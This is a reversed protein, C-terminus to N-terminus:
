EAIKRQDAVRVRIAPDLKQVGMAVVTEGPAVGHLLVQDRLLTQVQVPRATIAGQGIGGQGNGGQREDVIWVMPGQGRDGLASAPLLVLKDDYGPAALTVTATMGIALWDPPDALTFRATYTRLKADATPSLERLRAPLGQGPRAWLTVRATQSGADAVATEPLAVEAELAGSEALRLVPQGETVVTGPDALSATVVGAMPAKLMAYDLRNRALQLNARASAVREQGTRAAAQKADDSQASVWGSALLTRSRQADAQAQASQAEASALDSEAARVSLALDTPDLRALIQGAVVHAGLDVERSIVRGGARFGIDAERRPRIVGSYARATEGPAALARVVQVPRPLTEVSPQVREFCAALVLPLAIALPILQSSRRIMVFVRRQTARSHVKFQRIDINTM